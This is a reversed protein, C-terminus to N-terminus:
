QQVQIFGKDLAEQLDEKNLNTFEKVEGTDPDQLFVLPTTFREFITEAESRLLELNTLNIGEQKGLDPLFPSLIAIEADTLAKGGVAFLAGAKIKSVMANFDQQAQSQTFLGTRESTVRRTEEVPGTSVREVVNGEAYDTRACGLAFLAAIVSAVFANM